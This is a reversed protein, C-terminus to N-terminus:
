GEARPASGTFNIGDALEALANRDWKGGAPTSIELRTSDDLRLVLDYRGPRENLWGSRDGIRVPVGNGDTDGSARRVSVIVARPDDQSNPIGDAPGLTLGTPRLEALVYGEPAVDIDFDFDAQQTFPENRLSRAFAVTQGETLPTYGSAQVWQGSKDQWTLVTLAEYRILQGTTGHVPIPESVAAADGDPESPFVTVAVGSVPGDAGAAAREWQAHQVGREVMLRPTTVVGPPLEGPTLPFSPRLDVPVLFDSQAANHWDLVVENQRQIGLPGAAGVAAFAVAAVAATALAGAANRRRAHARSRRNVALLLGEASPAQEAHEALTRALENETMTM